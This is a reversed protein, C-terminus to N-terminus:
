AAARASVLGAIGAIVYCGAAALFVFSFGSAMALIIALVSAVVSASGNVGWVWPVLTDSLRETMRMGSPFPMGMFFAPLGLLAVSLAVRMPTSWGLTADFIVPLAWVYALIILVIAPIALRIAGAPERFLKGSTLSGLGSFLLFSALVVTISYVPHGLYLVFRQMAAIELFMFGMGIGFFFLFLPLKGRVKLGERRFFWLPILVLLLVLVSSEGLATLLIYLGVPEAGIVGFWGGGSDDATEDRPEMVSAWRHFRFFFPNDDNVPTINYKYDDIFKALADPGQKEAAFFAAFEPEPDSIGPAYSVTYKEDPRTLTTAFQNLIAVQSETFAGKKFVMVAYPVEIEQGDFVIKNIKSVVSICQEPNEIGRSRMAETAIAVLRLSERPPFFRFRLVAILGDDNLHDLYDQFAEVTYLYSESMVYAGSSLATYTDTGTMQILDYRKDSQRVFSRGEANIVEVPGRQKSPDAERDYIGGSLERYQSRMIEVTTPNIEAGTVAKSGNLYAHWLDHGGGVGIVLVEPQEILHHALSYVSTPSDVPGPDAPMFTPADADQYIMRYPNDGLRVVDLRCLPDWVTTEVETDGVRQSELVMAKSPAPRIELVDEAFPVLALLGVFLLTTAVRAKAGANWGFAVAGLAAIACVLVLSGAGGLPRLLEIFLFCGVGSGVLNVAYLRPANRVEAKLAAAIALGALFYPIVLYIYYAFLYLYQVRDKLLDVTDLEIKTLTWFAVLISLAFGGSIWALRSPLKSEFWKATISLFTGSAAFGLLTFTVVIYTLHHWLMVSFIRTQLVQLFLTAISTLFVGVYLSRQSAARNM